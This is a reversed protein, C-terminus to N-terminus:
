LEIVRKWEDMNSYVDYTRSLRYANDRTEQYTQSDMCILRDIVSSVSSSSNDVWYGAKYNDLVQWPTGKSAVVPTSQCLAEIVVNGFNESDSLLFLWKANAYLSNLKDGSVVGLFEVKRELKLKGILELLQNYYNGKKEGAIKITYESQLFSKSMSLARILKDIAKIPDLRGVYLFYPNVSNNTQVRDPLIMLNPVCFIKDTKMIRKVVDKEEDSTVHFIVRNNYFIRMIQFFIRKFMGYFKGKHDIAAEFLEGRPSVITRKGSMISKMRIYFGWLTCVGCTIFVDSKRLENKLTKKWDREKVYIVSFGNMKQWSDFQFGPTNIGRSTTVVRVVYGVHSLGSALWYLANTPGGEHAPFFSVNTILIRMKM